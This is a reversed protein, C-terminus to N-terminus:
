DQKPLSATYRSFSVDEGLLTVLVFGRVVILNKSKMEITADYTHGTKIQHIVGGKWKEGDFTFHEMVKYNLWKSKPLGKESFKEINKNKNEFWRVKAFYVNDEKLASPFSLNTVKTFYM